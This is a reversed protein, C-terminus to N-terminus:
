PVVSTAADLAGDVEILHVTGDDARSCLGILAETRDLVATGEEVDLEAIERLPVTFPPSTLVTVMENSRPM